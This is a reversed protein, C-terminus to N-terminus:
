EKEYRTLEKILAEKKSMKLHPNHEKYEGNPVWEKGVPRPDTYTSDNKAHWRNHCFSCIGHLNVGRENNLTNKDPGHHRDTARNGHCGEIPYVGGGAEKLLAWECIMTELLTDPLIEAARKRGTSLPDVLEDDTKQPRGLKAVADKIEDAIVENDKDCLETPPHPFEAICQLCPEKTSM